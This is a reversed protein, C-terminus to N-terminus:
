YKCFSAYQVVPHNHKHGASAGLVPQTAKVVAGHFKMLNCYTFKHAEATAKLGQKVVHPLDYDSAMEHMAHYVGYDAQEHPKYTAYFDDRESAFSPTTTAGSEKAYVISLFSSLIVLSIAMPGNIKM